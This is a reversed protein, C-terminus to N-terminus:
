GTKESADTLHKPHRCVLRDTFKEQIKKLHQYYKQSDGECEKDISHRIERIEKVVPDNKM